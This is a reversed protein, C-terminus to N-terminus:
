QDAHFGVPPVPTPRHPTAVAAALLRDMSKFLDLRVRAPGAVTALGGILVYPDRAPL